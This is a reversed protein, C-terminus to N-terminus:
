VVAATGGLTKVTATGGLKPLRLGPVLVTPTPITAVGLVTAVTVTVGVAVAPLPISTTAAIASPTPGAGAGVTPAPMTTTANVTAAAVNVDGGTSVSPAPMTTTCGIAAASVTSGTAVAPAPLTAVADVRTAVVTAGGSTTPGPISTTAAIAAPAVTSGTAVTPAPVTTTATVASPTAEAAGSVTPAPMTTSGAVAAPSVTSGTAVAPAPMTTTTTTAAPTATAAGSVSPAPLSTTASVASPTATAAGSVTPAPVSTTCSIATANVTADTGGAAGRVEVAIGVWKQGGPASLGTTKSGATGADSWAAGYFTAAFSVDQYVLEGSGSAPTISNITRWTRTSGDVENWDAFWAVIASNDHATTIALSPASGSANGTASNGFGDSGTYKVVDIGGKPAGGATNVSLNFTEATTATATWVAVVSNLAINIQGVATWTLGTGGTPEQLVDGSGGFEAHMAAVVLRDGVATTVSVSRPWTTSSWGDEYENALTPPTPM